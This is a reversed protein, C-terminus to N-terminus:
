TVNALYYFLTSRLRDMAVSPPTPVMTNSKSLDVEIISRLDIDFRSRLLDHQMDNSADLCSSYQPM